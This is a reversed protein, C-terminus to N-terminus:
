SICIVPCKGEDILNFVYLMESLPGAELVRTSKVQYIFFFLSLDYHRASQKHIIRIATCKRLHVLIQVTLVYTIRQLFVVCIDQIKFYQYVM